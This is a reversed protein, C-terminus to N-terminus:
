FDAVSPGNQHVRICSQRSIGDLRSFQDNYTTM